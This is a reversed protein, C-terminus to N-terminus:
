TAGTNLLFSHILLNSYMQIHRCTQHKTKANKLSKNSSILVEQLIFKSRKKRSAKVKDNNWDRLWAECLLRVKEFSGSGGASVAFTWRATCRTHCKTNCRLNGWGAPCKRQTEFKERQREDMMETWEKSKVGEESPALMWSCIRVWETFHIWVPPSISLLSNPTKYPIHCLLLMLSCNGTCHWRKDPTTWCSRSLSKSDSYIIIWLQQTHFSMQHAPLSVCSRLSLLLFSAYCFVLAKVQCRSM